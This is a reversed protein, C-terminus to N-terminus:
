FDGTIVEADARSALAELLTTNGLPQKAIQYSLMRVSGDAMCFNAGETHCSWIANFACRDQYKGLKFYAPNACQGYSGSSFPHRDGKVPSINDETCCRSDWWGFNGDASPPRETILITNSTGDIINRMAITFKSSLDSDDIIVGNNFKSPNSYVGVYWTFGYEPVKYDPGRPDSPCGLLPVADQVRANAREIYPMIQRHWTEYSGADWDWLNGPPEGGIHTTGRPRITNRPFYGFTEHFNHCALGLNHLNNRCQLVRARERVNQVAPVLLAVLLSCIAIATMLEILTFGSRRGTLDCPKQSATRRM